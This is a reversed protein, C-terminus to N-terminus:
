FPCQVHKGPRWESGVISGWQSANPKTNRDIGSKERYDASEVRSSQQSLRTERFGVRGVLPQKGSALCVDTDRMHFCLEPALLGSRLTRSWTNSHPRVSREPNGAGSSRKWMRSVSTYRALPFCGTMLPKDVGNQLATSLGGINGHLTYVTGLITFTTCDLSEHDSKCILTDLFSIRDMNHQLTFKLEPWVNNLHQDFSILSDIPGDWICFIDDIYRRWLRSHTQFLPHTYVFDQEFSSMYAIAYPPAVHSGMATGQQQIFFTDEFMFYNERLVLNLLDTCFRRIKIHTGAENLLRDVALIGKEHTISMYLSSVDWTVLLSSSPIAGLARILGLFDNTDLIFSSTSKVLPTLIKELVIAPNSPISDTLSVIPRGPPKFLRKHIKPLLYFIPTIPDTKILFSRLKNDITGEQEHFELLTKIKQAINNLPNQSTVRYIDSDNLQRYAEEMYDARDMIVIAGGKDAPKVVLTKDASLQDLALKESPLLNTHSHFKGLHLDRHFADINREVLSIFTEIPPSNKPPMFSSPSRLGLGRNRVLNDKLNKSRRQTMLPFKTLHSALIADTHLVPWHRNFIERIRNWQCNSTSIFRVESGEDVRSRKGQLLLDERTYIKGKWVRGQYESSQVRTGLFTGIPHRVTERLPGGHLM